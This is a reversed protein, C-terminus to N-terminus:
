LHYYERLEDEKFGAKEALIHDVYDSIKLEKCIDSLEEDCSYPYIFVSKQLMYFGMNKLKQRFRIRQRHFEQPIDFIVVRWKKDWTRNKLRFYKLASKEAWRTGEKTFLFRGRGNNKLIGRYKLNNLNNYIKDPDFGGIRLDKYHWSERAFIPIFEKNFNGLAELFNLIFKTNKVDAM